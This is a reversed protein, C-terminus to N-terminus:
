YAAFGRDVMINAGTVSDSDASALFVATGAMEDPKLWPDGKGFREQLSRMFDENDERYGKNMDTEICGPSLTNVQINHERLEVCHAKTLLSTAGKAACYGSSGPQGNEGAISGINIIKGGGRKKMYPVASQTCFFNGKLSSNIQRDWIEETTEGLPTFLYIGANNVLIDIGGFDTAVKAFTDEIQQPRTIDCRYAKSVGCKGAITEVVDDAAAVNSHYILAVKAGEEAFRECYCRGM